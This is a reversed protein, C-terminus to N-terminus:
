EERKTFYEGNFWANDLKILANEAKESSESYDCEDWLKNIEEFVRCAWWEASKYDDGLDELPINKSIWQRFENTM